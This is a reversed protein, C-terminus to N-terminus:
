SGEPEEDDALPLNSVWAEVESELWGVSNPGLRRRKPFRGAKEWRWITVPSAGVREVVVPQKLVKDAM